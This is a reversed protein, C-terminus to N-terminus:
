NVARAVAETGAADKALARRRLVEDLALLMVTM